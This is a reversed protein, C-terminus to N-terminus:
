EANVPSETHNHYGAMVSASRVQLEGEEGPTVSKGESGVIRWEVGPMVKGITGPRNIAPTNVAVVPGHETLGYGELLPHKFVTEFEERVDPPLKEGGAIALTLGLTKADKGARKASRTLMRYMSPVAVLANAGFKPLAEIVEGPDFRPLLSARAESVAPLVVAVTLAFTHFLPLASLMHFRPLDLVQRLSEHQALFNAHTLKVGKPLSTTGSTYLLVAVDSPNKAPEPKSSAAAPKGFDEICLTRVGLPKLKDEFQRCTIVLEAGSDKFVHILERPQLLFNIPVATKGAMLTAFFVLPFEKISPLCIAVTDRTTNNALLRSLAFAGAAIEGSRLQGAPDQYAVNAPDRASRELMAQDLTKLAM